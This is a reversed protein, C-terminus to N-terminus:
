FSEGDFVEVVDGFFYFVSDPATKNLFAFERGYNIEFDCEIKFDLVKAMDWRPHAVQYEMTNERFRKSYGWYHEAIFEEKSDVPINLRKAEAKLKIENIIQNSNWNYQLDINDEYRKISHSMSSVSYREGYLKNAVFAIMFKPVIESIFVVGRRTEGNIMRKVYFRLNVEIFNQHFPISFGKVKTKLFEFAVLSVFSQGAFKDLEIGKPLYPILLSDSVSYNAM